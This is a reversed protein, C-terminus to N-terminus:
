KSIGKTYDSLPLYVRFETGSSGTDYEIIGGHDDVAKAVFALGLGKGESKTTVFPDFLSRVIGESIGPGNDSVTICLPLHVRGTEGSMVFSVGRRYASKLTIQGGKGEVAEAANKVLNLFLQVLVDFNGDIEPM